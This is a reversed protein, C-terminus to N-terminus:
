KFTLYEYTEYKDIKNLLLASIKATDRNVDYLLKENRIKGDSNNKTNNKFYKCYFM